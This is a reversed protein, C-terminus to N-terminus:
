AVEIDEGGPEGLSAEAPRSMDFNWYKKLKNMPIGLKRCVSLSGMGSAQLERVQEAIENETLKRKTDSVEDRDAPGELCTKAMHGPKGCNKCNRAGGRKEKTAKKPGAKMKRKYKRRPAPEEAAEPKRVLIRLPDPTAPEEVKAEPARSPSEREAVEV